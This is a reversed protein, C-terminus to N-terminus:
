RWTGSVGNIVIKTGPQLGAAAADAESKFVLPSANATTKSSKTAKGAEISEDVAILQQKSRFLM